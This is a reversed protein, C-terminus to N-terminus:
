KDEIQKRLEKVENSLDKIAEILLPVLQDYKVALYGNDRTTVAEPLVELIEQAIVGAETGEKGSDENWDFTNGSISLVKDLANPIPIINDKLRQDSTYFATIDGKVYLANNMTVDGTVTHASIYTVTLTDNITTNKLSNTGGNQTIGGGFTLNGTFDSTGTVSLNGSASINNTVSTNGRVNLTGNVTAGASVVAFTNTSVGASNKLNLNIQGSNTTNSINFVGFTGGSGVNGTGIGTTNLNIGSNFTSIGSVNLTSLKTNNNVLLSGTNTLYAVGLGQGINVNKGIGVGGAVVLSGNSPKTSDVTAIIGLINDINVAANFTADGNFILPGNFQSLLTNSNGGEVILREKITVEDYTVSLRSPDQGRITTVPADFIEEQGTKANTKKSGLFFDGNNNMGTYVVTGCSRQQAQALRTQKDTPNIVQLQPLATSYNGPGYGLYEFTQNSSRVVSPRRFEIALPKIKKIFSGIDHSQKLTGLVGRIVTIEDSGAGGLSNSVIRMIENDVQIYTGLPFSSPISALSLPVSTIQIHTDDTFNVIKLYESQVFSIDRVGVNEGTVDSTAANASLGHRLLYSPTIGTGSLQRGTYASFSVVNNRKNVLFDGLNNNNQDLIRFKHGSLLGHNYVFNFTTIGSVSEFQTSQIVLSPGTIFAYEGAIIKPDKSTFAISVQTPSPVSRIRFYKSDTTGAGTFQVTNGLCTAIGSNALTITANASPGGLKTNDFYLLQGSTYASGGAIIESSVVKGGAVVVKATAGNWGVFGVDNYLKVNYYTGDTFGSGQQLVSYTVIGALSHPRDFTLTTASGVTSVISVGLGVGFDKLFQDATERTISKQQDNTSVDGVPFRKAFSTTSSPNEDLNDRDLQPYLNIIDQSYKYRTFEVPVANKANLVYLHYIGDQVGYKYQKIIENRYIYFNSQDDLKQFRPLSTTRLNINNTFTGPNHLIGFNDVVSYTFSKDDIISTVTFTGNYGSNDTAVINNTDTINKVVVIDGVKLNHPIEAVATIINSLNSCNSIFRPNRNYAYDTSLISSLTFDSNARPGTSSSEQIVYGEVPDRADITEKPIVVRLKYVKEDISRSDSYRQFYSVSSRAGVGVTEDAGFTRFLNYIGNNSNVHIFWNNNFVDYQIPSGLDGPNKDSVRSIIKLSTGGYLTVPNFLAANTTTSALKIYDFPLTPDGNINDYYQSVIAYYVTNESINEPLDGDDSFIRIKEGNLLGHTGIQFSNQATPGQLVPYVKEYSNSGTVFTSGVSASVVNDAMYVTATSIGFNNLTTVNNVYLQENKRGGVRYGQIINPPINDSTDFGYLYLHSSIGVSTTLGVDFSVWSINSSTLSNTSTNVIARPALISTAYATDDKLFATKKFGSANLSNQGFNSNSNTISADAGTRGEFHNTYGIAFVSVVQIFSDNSIKIHTNEWGNRYIALPDLHYVSAPDTSASGSALDAGTV